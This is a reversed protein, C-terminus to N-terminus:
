YKLSKEYEFWDIGLYLAMLREITEAIRHEEKYICNAENGPEDSKAIGEQKDKEWQLDYQLITPEPIGRRNILLFECLEHIAILASHYPNVQKAIDIIYQGNEEFYDGATFYRLTGPEKFRIIIDKDM